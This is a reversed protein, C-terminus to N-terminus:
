LQSLRQYKEETTHGDWGACEPVDSDKLHSLLHRESDHFHWAAQGAPLHICVITRWGEEWTVDAAPHILLHSPFLKSLAAVLQNRESYAANKQARLITVEEAPM